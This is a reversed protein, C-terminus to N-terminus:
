SSPNAMDHLLGITTHYLQGAPAVRLSTAPADPEAISAGVVGLVWAAPYTDAADVIETPDGGDEVMQEAILPSIIPWHKDVVVAVDARFAALAEDYEATM